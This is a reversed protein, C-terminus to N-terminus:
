PSARVARWKLAGRQATREDHVVGEMVGGDVRGEFRMRRVLDGNELLAFLIRSGDLRADRVIMPKGARTATFKLEQYKQIIDLEFAQKGQAGSVEGKWIGAVLAPIVWFYIESGTDPVAARIDAKWDGMDFDHSVVRTGPRLESLLRPRLELNIRPLLYMTIVTARGLDTKFLNQQAFTVRDAVGALKANEISERVRDPDIDM